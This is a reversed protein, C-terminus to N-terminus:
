LALFQRYTAEKAVSAGHPHADVPTAGRGPEVAHRLPKEVPVVTVHKMKKVDSFRVQSKQPRM